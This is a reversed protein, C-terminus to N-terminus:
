VGKRGGSGGKGEGGEMISRQPRHYLGYVAGQRKWVELEARAEALAAAAAPTSGDAGTLGARFQDRARRRIYERVNYDPFASGPLPCSLAILSLLPPRHSLRPWAAGGSTGDSREGSKGCGREGM